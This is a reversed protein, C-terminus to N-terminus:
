PGYGKRKMCERYVHRDIGGPGNRVAHMQQDCLLHAERYEAQARDGSVPAAACAGLLVATAVCAARRM